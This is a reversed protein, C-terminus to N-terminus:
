RLHIKISIFVANQFLAGLRVYVSNLLRQHVSDAPTEHNQCRLTLSYFFPM